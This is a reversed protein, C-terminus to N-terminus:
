AIDESTNTLHRHHWLLPAFIDLLADKDVDAPTMVVDAGLQHSGQRAFHKLWLRLVQRNLVPQLATRDELADSAATLTANLAATSDPVTEPLGPKIGQQEWCAIRLAAALDLLFTSAAITVPSPKTAQGPGECAGRKPRYGQSLLFQGVLHADREAQQMVAEISRAVAQRQAPTIQSKPM